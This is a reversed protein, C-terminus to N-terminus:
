LKLWRTRAITYAQLKPTPQLHYLGITSCLLSATLLIIMSNINPLGFKALAVLQVELQM